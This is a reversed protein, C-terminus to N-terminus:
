GHHDHKGPKRRHRRRQGVRTGVHHDRDIPYKVDVYDAGFQNRGSRPRHNGLHCARHIPRDPGLSFGVAVVPVLTVATYKETSGNSVTFTGTGAITNGGSSYLAIITVTGQTLATALGTTAGITAIQTSSSSWSVQSTSIRRRAQPRPESRSSNRPKTQASSGVAFQPHHHPIHREGSPTSGGGRGVNGNSDLDRERHHNGHVREDDGHHDHDRRYAGNGDGHLQRKGGRSHEFDM